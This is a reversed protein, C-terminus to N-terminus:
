GVQSKKENEPGTLETTLDWRDHIIQPSHTALLVDFKALDTIDKLDKLFQQQWVIHLSLEPEDILILSNPSVKFLLEYFLVLEHQEGSSLKSLELSSDDNTKFIFGSKKDISMKKYLFRNNINKVLLDAKNTFEDFVSLKKEVDEIYVSLVNRNNENIKQLERFDIEREKDLLGAAMLRSRKTELAALKTRLEDLTIISSTSKVLRTPFTRDLSQSLTAYEALKSQITKALEESYKIVAPVMTPGESERRRSSYSFRLLRQTEIFRVPIEEKIKTLWDPEHGGKPFDSSLQGEFRALVEDLTLEEQTPLYMWSERGIRELGPIVRELDMLPFPMERRTPTKVSYFQVKSRYQKFELILEQRINKENPAENIPEGKKIKLKDKNDFEIMLEKFVILRLESYNSNFISNIIKLLITKGVGNPGYIITIRDDLKLDITHDFLGFLEKVAIEKIRM